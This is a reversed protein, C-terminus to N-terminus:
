LAESGRLPAEVRDEGHAVVGTWLGLAVGDALYRQVRQSLRLRETSPCALELKRLVAAVPHHAFDRYLQGQLPSLPVIRQGKSQRVVAWSRPGDPYPDPLPLRRTGSETPARMEHRLRLLPFREIVVAVAPSMRLHAGSEPVLLTALESASPQWVPAKPARFLQRFVQDARLAESLTAKSLERPLGQPTGTHFPATMFADFGDAAHALDRHRPPFQQVFELACREFAPSGVLAATLRFEHRLAQVLRLWYQRHYVALRAPAALHPGPCTVALLEAPATGLPAEPEAGVRLPSRLMETFQGQFTELWAPAVTM